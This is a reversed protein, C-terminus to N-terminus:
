VIFKGKFQRKINTCVDTDSPKFGRQKGFEEKIQDIWERFEQSVRIVSSTEESM